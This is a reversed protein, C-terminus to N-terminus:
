AEVFRVIKTVTGSIPEATFTGDHRCLMALVRGAPRLTPQLKYDIRVPPILAVRYCRLIAALAAKIVSLAFWYGPCAFPGASFGMLQFPSPSITKWREPRFCSPDQYIDPQRNTLYGSLVVLTGRPFAFNALVADEQAVRFHLPVPPIIRLVEKVVSDLLPLRAIREFDASSAVTEILEDHLNRAVTPHQAILILAWMLASACAEFSMLLMVSLQAAAIADGTPNGNEDTSNVVIAGLDREDKSGRKRKAWALMRNELLEAERLYRSFPTLPLSVPFGAVSLRWSTELVREALRSISEASEMNSAFLLELALTRSLRIAYNVLDISEGQPLAAVSQQAIRLMANGLQEIMPKRLPAIILSRYHEHRLGRMRMLAGESLRSTASNRPGGLLLGIGRWTTPNSLVERNFPAGATLVLPVGFPVLRVNATFPLAGTLVAFQGFVRDCERMTAIPDLVFRLAYQLARLGTVQVPKPSFSEIVM